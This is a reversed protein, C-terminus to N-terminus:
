DHAIEKRRANKLTTVLWNDEPRIELEEPACADIAQAYCRLASEIDQNAELYKNGALFYGAARNSKSDFAQWELDRPSTEQSVAAPVGRPRVPDAAPADAIRRNDLVPQPTPWRFYVVAAGVVLCAAVAGCLALWRRLRRRHLSRSTQAFLNERLGAPEACRSPELLNQLPDPLDNM